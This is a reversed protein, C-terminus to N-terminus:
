KTQVKLGTSARVVGGILRRSNAIRQILSVPRKEEVAPPAVGTMAAAEADVAAAAGPAARTMLSNGRARTRRAATAANATAQATQEAKIREAEAERRAAERDRASDRASYGGGGGDCM